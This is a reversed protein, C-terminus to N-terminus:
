PIGQALYLKIVSAVKPETDEIVSTKKLFRNLGKQRRNKKDQSKDKKELNKEDRIDKTDEKKKESKSLNYFTRTDRILKVLVTKEEIDLMEKLLEMIEDFIILRRDEKKERNFSILKNKIDTTDSESISPLINSIAESAQDDGVDERVDKVLSLINDVEKYTNRNMKILAREVLAGVAYVHKCILNKLGPDRKSPFSGSSEPDGYLYDKRQANYDAGWYKWFPCSCTVNVDTATIVRVKPDKEFQIIVAYGDPDSWSEYGTVRYTYRLIRPESKIIFARTNPARYRSFKSTTRMLDAITLATKHMGQKDFSFSLKIPNNELRYLSVLRQAKKVLVSDQQDFNRPNFNYTLDSYFANELYDGHTDEVFDVEPRNLVFVDNTYDNEGLLNSPKAIDQYGDIEYISFAM